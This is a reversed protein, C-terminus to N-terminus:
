QKRKNKFAASHKVKHIIADHDLKISDNFSFFRNGVRAYIGTINGTLRESMKFSECRTRTIWQIPPLVELSFDFYSETIEEPETRYYDEIWAIAQDVDVIMMLPHDHQFDELTKGSYHGVGNSLMNDQICLGIADGCPDFFVKNTRTVSSDYFVQKTMTEVEKLRAINGVIAVIELPWLHFM